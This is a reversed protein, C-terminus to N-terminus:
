PAMQRLAQRRRIRDPACGQRDRRGRGRHHVRDGLVVLVAHATNELGGVASRAPVVDRAIMEGVLLLHGVAVGNGNVGRIGLVHQAAPDVQMARGIAALGPVAGREPVGVAMVHAGALVVGVAIVMAQQHRRRLRTEDIRKIVAAEIDALVAARGPAIAALLEHRRHEVVNIHRLRSRPHEAAPKLVVACVDREVAIRTPEDLPVISIAAPEDDIWPVWALVICGGVVHDQRPM